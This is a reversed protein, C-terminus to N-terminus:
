SPWAFGVAFFRSPLDLCKDCTFRVSSQKKGSNLIIAVIFGILTLYAIIAATKDETTAPPPPTQTPITTDM